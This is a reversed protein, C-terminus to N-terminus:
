GAVTAGRRSVAAARPVYESLWLELMLIALLMRSSRHDASGRDVLRRVAQRDLLTTYRAAPDFLVDGIVGSIQARFWHEVSSHFFGVKPRDIVDDPILGRAARRLV